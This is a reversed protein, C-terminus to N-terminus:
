KGLQNKELVEKKITFLTTLFNNNVQFPYRKLIDKFYPQTQKPFDQIPSLLGKVWKAEHAYIQNLGENTKAKRRTIRLLVIILSEPLLKKLRSQVGTEPSKVGGGAFPIQHLTEILIGEKESEFLIKRGRRKSAPFSLWFRVISNDWFPLRSEFRFFDYIKISNVIFKSHKEQWHIYSLFNEPKSTSNEFIEKLVRIAKQNIVKGPSITADTKYAFLIAEIKTKCDFNRENFRSNIPTHGPVIVDGVEIIGKEKLEFVALFDQLHPTSVGNFSDRIYEGIFGNEHLAHWKQTTYEVFHWEYGLADAVLKSIRAQENNPTGYTYCIVNKIGLRYLYNVILRSDHGGSLPVVWRNVNPNQDIMRSFASLLVQDFANSFETLTEFTVPNEAPKFEFYRESTLKKGSITIVEGAQLGIVNKYVTRNGLVLGCAVFEELKEIDTKLDVEIKGLSDTITNADENTKIIFLPQSRVIDVAVYAKGNKIIIISFSGNAKILFINKLSEYFSIGKDKHSISLVLDMIGKADHIFLGEYELQGSLYISFSDSVFSSAFPSFLRVSLM